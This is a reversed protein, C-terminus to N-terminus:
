LAKLWGRASTFELLRLISHFGRKLVQRDHRSLLAPPLEAGSTGQGIGVRGQQWLVIRLTDSAERFISEQEPLRARAGAFRELTSRSLVDGAALAFVRGVDVLPRLASHELQFTATHQGSSDVVADQFFTLPPLSDLCDNAMLLVFDRDVTDAVTQRVGNWLPQHGCVQRVDFLSRARHAQQMVPDRVWNHYRAAWSGAGAAYFDTEFPLDVRPLYGCELLADFVQRHTSRAVPEPVGDEFVALLTPVMRTLSEGRGSSGSFCWSAPVQGAGSLSVIRTVVAADVLSTFRALWEVSGAGTLHDLVFARSRDALERLATTDEAVRVLRLLEAPHDGFLPTLDRRTVLAEVRGNVSGDHTIALAGVDASGMTLLGDVVSADPAATTPTEHLLSEVSDQASGWGEAAWRLFAEGTLVGRPRRDADTVVIAEARTALLRRAVEAISDSANCTAPARGGVLDHLFIRPLDRRANPSQYDPTVRSEASVYQLAHPYKLVFAEFDAAPFAYVIVDSESRATHLCAPADNYREIGLMDGAGRVDRLKSGDASESWLSVTGQQIVFVHLRHPEGQWLIFDQPEHFRVRGGRALALLDEDDVAQFPAHKKLFDAVRYSIVATEV